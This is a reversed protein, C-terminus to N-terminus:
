FKIDFIDVNEKIYSSEYLRQMAQGFSKERRQLALLRRINEAEIDFPIYGTNFRDKIKYFFLGKKSSYVPTIAGIELKHLESLAEATLSLEESKKLGISGENVKSVEDESYKEVAELFTLEGMQVQQFVKEARNQVKRRASFSAQDTNKFLVWALDYVPTTIKYRFEKNENYYERIEADSPPTLNIKGSIYRQILLNRKLQKEFTSRDVGQAAVMADFQQNDTINNAIMIRNIESEVDEPRIRIGESKAYYNIIRETILDSMAKNSITKSDADKLAPDNKVIAYTEEFDLKTIVDDNVYYYIKELLVEAAWLPLVLIVLALRLIIIGMRLKAMIVEM